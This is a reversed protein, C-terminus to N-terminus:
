WYFVMGGRNGYDTSGGPYDNDLERQRREAFIEAYIREDLDAEYDWREKAKQWEKVDPIFECCGICGEVKCFDEQHNHERKEHGCGCVSLNNM